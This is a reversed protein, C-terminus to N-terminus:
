GQVRRGAISGQSVCNRMQIIDKASSFFSSYVIPLSPVQNSTNYILNILFFFNTICMLRLCLVQLSGKRNTAYEKPRGHIHFVSLLTQYQFLKTEIRGFNNSICRSPNLFGGERRDSWVEVSSDCFVELLSTFFFERISRQIFSLAIRANFPATM